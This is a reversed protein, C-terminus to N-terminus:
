MCGPAWTPDQAYRTAPSGSARLRMRQDCHPCAWGDVGFNRKLLERWPTWRPAKSPSPATTLVDESRSELQAPTPSVRGLVVEARWSSRPALVGHYLVQNKHPPPVLAALREVLELRTMAIAVSGPAVPWPGDSAAPTRARV